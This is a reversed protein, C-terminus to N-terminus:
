NKLIMTEFPQLTIRGNKTAPVSVPLATLNCYAAFSEGSKEILIRYVDAELRTVIRVPSGSWILAEELESRQEPTYTSVDDSTFLLGGLLANIMLVTSQQVPTFHQHDDRLIFVDPDSIFAPGNLHWRGLVSRLAALTSVRERHRLVALLRHEWHLHVDGGVRCYDANGAAASLPVGCALMTRNGMQRRLFQMADHMVQGRTKERPPQLCVAFLFDLKLLEFGWRELIVHFVGSLYDQVAPHYFDLAYFWGGWYPNWGVCIVRGGANKLLWDPHRKVLESRASAVFPALWLGPVLGRERIAAAVPGMGNPFEPKVSLWDGTATQWGDDIQVYRFPLGSEAIAATNKLIISESINTFHRYWSTWGLAPMRSERNLEVDAFFQQADQGVRFDLGPFSHSLKLGPLDKRVTMIKNAHDYLFLTFGTSEGLSSLYTTRGGPGVVYTYSWAHLQGPGHPIGSIHDDGYLGMFPRAIKRLRRIEADVPLLRSESWSQFGNAFFLDVAPCALEVALDLVTLDTKPHLFLTYRWGSNDEIRQFDVHLEEFSNVQGPVLLYQKEGQPGAIRVIANQFKM